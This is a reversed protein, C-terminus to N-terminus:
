RQRVVLWLALATGGILLGIILPTRFLITQLDTPLVATFVAAGLVVAVAGLGVILVERLGVPRGGGSARPEPM